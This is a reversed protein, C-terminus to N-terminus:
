GAKAPRPESRSTRSREDGAWEVALAEIATRQRMYRGHLRRCHDELTLVLTDLDRWTGVNPPALSAQLERVRDILVQTDHLRGLLEQARRMPRLTVDTPKGTTEALLEAAYRLKKLAIRAAHLREPLYVAGAARIADVLHGARRAVRAEIAWRWSRDQTRGPAQAQDMQEAVGELKRAIRRMEVIPTRALLRKRAEDRDRAVALGVRGVASARDRRGDNLEDLQVLMVDLERVAGLQRTVKRLRRGIKRAADPHKMQLTPLLERLRRSAVRARHLSRMDGHEVGHLTKTFRELRQRLLDSRDISAPM